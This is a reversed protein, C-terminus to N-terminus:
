IYVASGGKSDWALGASSTPVPIGEAPKRAFAIVNAAKNAAAAESTARHVMSSQRIRGVGVGLVLDPYRKDQLSMKLGSEEKFGKLTGTFWAAFVKEGAYPFLDGLNLKHGSALTASLKTLYLWGDEITWSAEIPKGPMLAPREGLLEFYGELPHDVLEFKRDRYDLHDTLAVGDLSAHLTNPLQSTAAVPSMTGNMNNMKKRDRQPILKKLAQV